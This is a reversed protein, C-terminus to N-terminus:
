QLLEYDVEDYFLVNVRKEQQLAQVVVSESHETDGESVMLPTEAQYSQPLITSLVLILLLSMKRKM